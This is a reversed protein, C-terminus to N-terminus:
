LLVNSLQPRKSANASEQMPWIRHLIRALLMGIWGGEESGLVAMSGSETVPGATEPLNKECRECPM